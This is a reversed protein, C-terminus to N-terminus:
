LLVWLVPPLDHQRQGSYALDVRGEDAELSCHVTWRGVETNARLVRGAGGVFCVENQFVCQGWQIMYDSRVCIYMGVNFEGVAWEVYM